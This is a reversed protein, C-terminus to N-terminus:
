GYTRAARQLLEALQLMVEAPAELALRGEGAPRVEIGALLAKVRAADDTVAPEPKKAPEAVERLRELFSGSQEFGVADASGDFLGQFLAQKGGVVTEIHRELGESIFLVVEVPRRQGHRHVRAIRQELVAPNWPLDLNMVCSAARQLNLGVGGADTAFLVRVSPDDHFRVLNQDRTKRNGGTFFV